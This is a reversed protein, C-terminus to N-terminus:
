WDLIMFMVIAIVGPIVTFRIVTGPVIIGSALSPIRLQDPRLTETGYGRLVHIKAPISRRILM